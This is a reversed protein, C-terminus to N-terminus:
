SLKGNQSSHLTLMFRTGGAPTDSLVVDADM